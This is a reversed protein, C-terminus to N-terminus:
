LDSLEWAPQGLLVVLGTGTLVILVTVYFQQSEVRDPLAFLFWHAIPFSLLLQRFIPVLAANTEDLLRVSCVGKPIETRLRELGM